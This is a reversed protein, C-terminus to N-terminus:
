DNSLDLVIVDLRGRLEEPVKAVIAARLDGPTNIHESKRGAILEPRGWHNPGVPINTGAPSSAAKM